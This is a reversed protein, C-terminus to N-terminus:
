EFSDGYKEERWEGHYYKDCIGRAYMDCANKSFLVVYEQSTVRLEFLISWNWKDSPNLKETLEAMRDMHDAIYSQRGITAGTIQSPTGQVIKPFQFEFKDLISQTRTKLLERARKLAADETRAYVDLLTYGSYKDQYVIKSERKTTSACPYKHLVKLEVNDPDSIIVYSKADRTVVGHQELYDLLYNRAITKANSKDFAYVRCSYERRLDIAEFDYVCFLKQSDFDLNHAEGLDDCKLISASRNLVVKYDHLVDNM